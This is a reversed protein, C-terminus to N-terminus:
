LLKMHITLYREGELMKIASRHAHSMHDLADAPRSLHGGDSAASRQREEVLQRINSHQRLISQIMHVKRNWGVECDQIVTHALSVVAGTRRLFTVLNKDLMEVVDKIWEPTNKENFM